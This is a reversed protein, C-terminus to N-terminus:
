GLFSVIFLGESFRLEPSNCVLPLSEGVLRLPPCLLFSLLSNKVVKRKCWEAFLTEIIWIGFSPPGFIHMRKDRMLNM